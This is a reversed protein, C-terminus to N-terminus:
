RSTRSNKPKEPTEDGFIAGADLKDSSRPKRQVDPQANSSASPEKSSSATLGIASDDEDDGADGHLAALQAELDDM